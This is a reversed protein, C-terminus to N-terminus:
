ARGSTRVEYDEPNPRSTRARFEDMSHPWQTVFRGSASRYYFDNGCAAQWVDVNAIDRQLQENYTDMVDKRIDIWALNEDTIRQVQRMIYEVQRELMFLISGQNTNPGYLMFLNPFGSTNIGLYAQAGDAWADAIPVGNRGTVDLATLYSTTYFGTSYIITDLEHEAGDRTLIGKNTIREIDETVLTVNDRNFIPYYLDSFLPRKCGFPHDPTLKRRVEPDKVEAIRELGAREIDALVQKDGFTALTNWVNYIEERSKAVLEPRHRFEEIQAATYPTNAKPVVWNATRQFLHLEGAIPALQPAFQVASAAIGIVGIREGSVDHSHDWRASHWYHGKFDDIGPITPWVLQNFMGIASVVIQASMHRGDRTTIDWVGREDSWHLATVSAGFRIHRRVDYKDAVMNLYELIEAQGAFPQSWDVKPEFSFSYLHSQVDCEAGPYRNWFWTGGIGDGQELILYDDLGLRNLHVATCLGASGAGIIVIRHHESSM